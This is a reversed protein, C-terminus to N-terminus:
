ISRGPVSVPVKLGFEAPSVFVHSPQVDYTRLFFSDVQNPLLRYKLQVPHRLKHGHHASMLWPM